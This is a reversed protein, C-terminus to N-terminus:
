RVCHREATEAFARYRQWFARDRDDRSMRVQQAREPDRFFRAAQRQDRRTLHADAVRQVCNCLSRTAGARDSANCATEITRAEASAPALTLALAALAAATLTNRM